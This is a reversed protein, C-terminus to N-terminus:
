VGTHQKPLKNRQLLGHVTNILKYPSIPKYLAIDVGMARACELAPTPNYASPRYGSVCVIPIPREIRNRLGSLLTIGGEPVFQGDKKIMMDTIILDPLIVEVLELAKIATESCYVTHSEAELLRRWYAALAIDDECILITAM